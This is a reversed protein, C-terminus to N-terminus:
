YVMLKYAACLSSFGRRSGGGVRGGEAERKDTSRGVGGVGEELGWIGGGADGSGSVARGAGYSGAM